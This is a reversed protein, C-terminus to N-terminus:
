LLFLFNSVSFFFFLIHVFCSTGVAYKYTGSLHSNNGNQIILPILRPRKFLLRLTFRQHRKDLMKNVIATFLDWVANREIVAESEHMLMNRFSDFAKSYEGSVFCATTLLYDLDLRYKKSEGYPRFNMAQEILSIAKKSEKM